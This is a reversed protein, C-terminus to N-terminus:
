IYHRSFDFTSKFCQIYFDYIDEVNPLTRTATKQEMLSKEFTAM